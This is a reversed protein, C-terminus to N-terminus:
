GNSYLSLCNIVKEKRTKFFSRDGPRRLGKVVLPNNKQKNFNM